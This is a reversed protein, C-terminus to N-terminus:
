KQGMLAQCATGCRFRDRWFRWQDPSKARESYNVKRLLNLATMAGYPVAAAEEYTMNAPKLAVVGDEPMCLYEANAGFSLVAIDLFRTVQRLDNSMKASQNLKGPWNVGWYKEEQNESVLMLRAPLWFRCRCVSSALPSIESIGLTIDGFSVPTAYVKILIENDKPLLNKWRKSNFSM